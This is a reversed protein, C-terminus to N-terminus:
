GHEKRYKCGLHTHYGIVVKSNPESYPCRAASSTNFPCYVIQKGFKRAMTGKQLICARIVDDLYKSM